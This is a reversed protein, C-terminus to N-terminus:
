VVSQTLNRIANFRPSQPSIRTYFELSISVNRKTDSASDIATGTSSSPNADQRIM